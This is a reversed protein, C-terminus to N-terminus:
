DDCILAKKNATLRHFLNKTINNEMERKKCSIDAKKWLGGKPSENIAKEKKNREEIFVDFPLLKVSATWQGYVIGESVGRFRRMAQAMDDHNLGAVGEFIAVVLDISHSGVSVDFGTWATYTYICYQYPVKNFAIQDFAEPKNETESMLCFGNMGNKILFTHLKKATSKKSCPIAVKKGEKLLSLITEFAHTTRSCYEKKSAKIRDDFHEDQAWRFFTLNMRDTQYDNQIKVPKKNM